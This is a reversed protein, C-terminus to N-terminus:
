GFRKKGLFYFVSSSILGMIISIVGFGFHAKMNDKYVIERGKQIVRVGLNTKDFGTTVTPDIYISYNQGTTLSLSSTKEFSQKKTGAYIGYLVDEGELNMLIAYSRGYKGFGDKTVVHKLTGDIRIFESDKISVRYILLFGIAGFFLLSLISYRNAQKRKTKNMKIFAL